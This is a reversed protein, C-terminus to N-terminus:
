TSSSPTPWRALRSRGSSNLATNHSKRISLWSMDPVSDHGHRDSFDIRLFYCEVPRDEIGRRETDLIPVGRDDGGRALKPLAHDGAAGRGVIALGFERDLVIAIQVARAQKPDRDRLLM